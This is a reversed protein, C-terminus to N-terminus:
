FRENDCNCCIFNSWRFVISRSSSAFWFTANEKQSTEKVTTARRNRVSNSAQQTKDNINQQMTANLTREGDTNSNSSAWGVTHGSAISRGTSSVGLNFGVGDSNATARDFLSSEGSTVGDQEQVADSKSESFGKQAEKAVASTVEGISRIHNVDAALSEAQNTQENLNGKDTRTWDVMAIRTSEGPALALSHLLHGLALGQPYWSQRYTLVAGIAPKATLAASVIDSIDIAGELLLEEKKNLQSLVKLFKELEKSEEEPLNLANIYERVKDFSMKKFIVDTINEGGLVKDMVIVDYQVRETAYKRMIPILEDPREEDSIIIAESLGYADNIIARATNYAPWAALERITFVSLANQIFAASTDDLQRLVSISSDAIEANKKGVAIADILDGSFRQVFETDKIKTAEKIQRAASFLQSSGLDFISLIGINNLTKAAEESVTLLATVPQKLLESATNTLFAPRLSNSFDM